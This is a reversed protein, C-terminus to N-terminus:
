FQYRLTLQIQRRANIVARPGKPVGFTSNDPGVNGDLTGFIHRNFANPIDAKFVLSHSESIATRKIISFDESFYHESRVNGLTLPLDGFQYGRQAVLSDANQDLFAACNFYNNNTLSSFTGDANMKCGTPLAPNFSSKNPSYIPVGPVRSFKFNGGSFPPSQAFSNFIVPSGSQYRHVGGVQWGGLVKSGVGHSLYKKGPGAPLEYLYSIVVAHPTDQYSLAKETKLNFPNQAGFNNSAFASFTPFTSDADTLTKSFTYAALLNLGNRFRRELKAELANYTSQGVNELCCSTNIDQYQPFPRLLQGVGIPTNAYLSMFWSPATIGLSALDAQGAVGGDSCQTTDPNLCDNLKKGLSYFKPDISNTQVLNSHLRTAHTGVYGVSLILDTALQHQVEFSWNQVMGPRGYGPAVYVPFGGNLLAPDKANSPPTFGPFGAELSQAPSSTFGNQSKFDPNVTTGSTLSDGFDSYSLATYYIGYGGRIVTQRLRGFLREPAYAFGLRPSFDKYYTKAGKANPGYILAGPVAPSIPVAVNGSNPVTLDLVSQAGLSEHRPTDVEYRMGINFTLDKRFKFDDQLYGVYYNQLWRPNHSSIQLSEENPLGLLFSAFPDGTQTDNAKWATQLNEFNFNPSTNANSIRSYQSYRWEFGMRLSHRGKIWSVSDSVLLSNPIATDFSGGGFGSYGIGLPSGGFGIQPFGPGSAGKIGLTAEWDQGTVATGRSQDYLRNLGLNLHNLLSPSLTRDWGFRLYHSVRSKFFNGDLPPPLAPTGNLQEQDRSSYSFFFKDKTGLNQDIHFTLTTDRVPKNSLFIFNSILGNLGGSTNPHVQLYSLIKQAVPSLTTIKNGPFAIRGGVFGTPCSPTSPDFIQGLHVPTNDCPNLIPPSGAGGTLLVPGLLASFDGTREADTPLTSPNSSTSTGENNRYQEWSFFFFTKDRGKYLKPIWVPGGLSGGFDNQHDRPKPTGNLDETWLKADLKDNRLIDFATGHFDNTGSKTTFSEVGGSTRGFEAPITSTTVKFENLAEISPANEDFTSGLEAHAISAGDLIVETSFNQGGALKSEFVGSSPSDSNTGPGATGPTLFVFSEASRLHSQGTSNLALPLEEIQKASVVTGIESSETQLGPADAVVTLTEKVDGPQLSFDLSSTTNIQVGVGTKTETKFGPAAVSVSYVGVQVDPIRYGGTPGTTASYNAGTETRTVTVTANVVVGGSSDLVTGAITGRDSQARATIGSFALLLSFSLFRLLSLNFRM